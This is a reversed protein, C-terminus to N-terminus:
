VIEWVSGVQRIRKLGHVTATVNFSPHDIGLKGGNLVGQRATVPQLLNAQRPVYHDSHTLKMAQMFVNDDAGSGKFTNFYPSANTIGYGRFTGAGFTQYEKKFNTDGSVRVIIREEDCYVPFNLPDPNWFNPYLIGKCSQNSKIKQCIDNKIHYFVKNPNDKLKNPIHAILEIFVYIKNPFLTDIFRSEIAIFSTKINDVKTEIVNHKTWGECDIREYSTMSQRSDSNKITAFKRFTYENMNPKIKIRDPFLDPSTEIFVINEPTNHSHFVTNLLSEIGALNKQQILVPKTLSSNFPMNGRPTELRKNNIDLVRSDKKEFKGWSSNAFNPVAETSIVGISVECDRSQPSNSILSQDFPNGLHQRNWATMPRSTINIGDHEEVISDTSYQKHLNLTQQHPRTAFQSNKIGTTMKNSPFYKNLTKKHFSTKNKNNANSRTEVM